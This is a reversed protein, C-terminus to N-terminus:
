AGGPFVLIGKWSVQLAMFLTESLSPVKGTIGKSQISFNVDPDLSKHPPETHILKDEACQRNM